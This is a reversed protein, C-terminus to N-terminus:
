DFTLIGCWFPIEADNGLVKSLSDLDQFNQSNKFIEEPLWQRHILFLRDESKIQISRMHVHPHPDFGLLQSPLPPLTKKNSTTELDLVMGMSLPLPLQNPHQFLLHPHGSQITTLETGKLSLALLEFGFVYEDKNDEQYVSEAALLTGIQLNNASASINTFKAFPNTAERDDQASLYYNSIMQLVKKSAAKPGWPTVIILLKEVPDFFFEPRPWSSTNGIFSREEFKM